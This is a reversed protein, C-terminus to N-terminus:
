QVASIYGHRRRRRAEDDLTWRSRHSDRHGPRRACREKIYPMLYGCEPRDDPCVHGGSRQGENRWRKGNWVVRASCGQCRGPLAIM